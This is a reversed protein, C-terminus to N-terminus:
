VGGVRKAPRQGTGGNNNQQLSFLLGREKDELIFDIRFFFL